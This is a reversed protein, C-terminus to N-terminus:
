TRRPVRRCRAARVLVQDPEVAVVPAPDAVRDRPSTELGREAPDISVGPTRGGDGPDAQRHPPPAVSTGRLQLTAGRAVVSVSLGGDDGSDRGAGHSRADIRPTAPGPDAYRRSSPFAPRRAARVRRTSPTHRHRRTESKRPRRRQWTAGGGGDRTLTETVSTLRANVFASDVDPQRVNDPEAPIQIPSRRSVVEGPRLRPRVRLVPRPNPGSTDNM